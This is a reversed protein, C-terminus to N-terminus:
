NPLPVREISFLDVTLQRKPYAAHLAYAADKATAVEAASPRGALLAKVEGLYWIVWADNPLASLYQEAVHVGQKLWAQEAQQNSRQREIRAMGILADMRAINVGLMADKPGSLKAALADAQKFSAMADELQNLAAQAKASLLNADTERQDLWVSPIVPKLEAVRKIAEKAELLAGAADNQELKANGFNIRTDMSETNRGTALGGNGAKKSASELARQFQLSANVPDRLQKYAFAMSQNAAWEYWYRGAGSDVKLQGAVRVSEELLVIAKGATEPNSDLLEGHLRLIDTTMVQGWLDDKGAFREYTKALKLASEYAAIAETVKNAVHLAYAADKATAVEAASPRGALLAKVEGLYWIASQNNPDLTLRESAMRQIERLLLDRGKIDSSRHAVDALKWKSSAQWWFRADLDKIKSSNALAESYWKKATTIDARALYGDGLDFCVQLLTSPVGEILLSKNLSAFSRELLPADFGGGLKAQYFLSYGVIAMVNATAESAPLSAVLSEIEKFAKLQLLSNLRADLSAKPNDATSRLIANAEVESGNFRLLSVLADSILFYGDTDFSEIAALASRLRTELGQPCNKVTICINSLQALANRSLSDLEISKLEYKINEQEDRPNKSRSLYSSRLWILAIFDSSVAAHIRLYDIADALVKAGSDGNGLRDEVFGVNFSALAFISRAAQSGPLRKSAESAMRYRKVAQKLQGNRYFVEGFSNYWCATELYNSNHALNKEISMVRQIAKEGDGFKLLMDMLLKREVHGGVDEECSNKEAADRQSNSLSLREDQLADRRRQEGERTRIELKM